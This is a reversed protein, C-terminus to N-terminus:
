SVHVYYHIILTTAPFDISDLTEEMDSFCFLKIMCLFDTSVLLLVFVKFKKSNLIGSACPNLRRQLNALCCFYYDCDCLLNAIENFWSPQQKRPQQGTPQSEGVKSGSRERGNSVKRNNHNGLQSQCQAQYQHYPYFSQGDKGEEEEDHPQHEDEGSPYQSQGLSQRNSKENCFYTTLFFHSLVAFSMTIM